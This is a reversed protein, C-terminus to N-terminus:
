NKNRRIRIKKLGQIFLALVSKGKNAKYLSELEEAPVNAIRYLFMIIANILVQKTPGNYLYKRASVQIYKDLIIIKDKKYQELLYDSYAVDEMFQEPYPQTKFISHRVFLANTGVLRKNLKTRLNLLSETLGFIFSKNYKKLFAGAIYTSDAMISQIDKIANKPLFNDIHLFLLIDGSASEAALNMSQARSLVTNPNPNQVLKVKIISSKCASLIDSSFSELTNHEGDSLILETSENQEKLKEIQYLIDMKNTKFLPIIISVSLNTNLNKQMKKEKNIM